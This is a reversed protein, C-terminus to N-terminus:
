AAQPPGDNAPQQQMAAQFTNVFAQAADPGFMSAIIQISQDSRVKLQAEVAEAEAKLADAEAQRTEAATKKMALMATQQQMQQQQQAEQAKAAQAQKEEETLDEGETVTLNPPLAKKLREAIDDAMPWDQSKAILDAAVAAASPVAQVFALMSEAAEARKTTYSPGTSIVIDYKGKGIDIADPDNADNIKKLSATEDEGIVRITRATDYVTPILQNAIKGVERISAQLNDHYMVTAVDGERQRAMIAKGSTENSQIGLSADHLGTVDKMDQANLQAEQLIAAPFQPPEMRKPAENGEWQLVTDGSTHANRFDEEWGEAGSKKLLWQTKPALALLEASVSRWYNLLRQPDKAFRVLGFRVRKEAVRIERGMVRIIPLRDIPLEYPDELVDSGGILYMCASKRKVERIRPKGNATTAIQGKFQDEKGTIDEIKGDVLLAIKRPTEKMVWYETVRVTDTTVWGQAAYADPLNTLQVGPYKAEFAKRPVVDSVFCYGADAGTRDVSMPDWVVALPNAGARIRIDKEFVDDNVWELNVRMWGQGCSVQDEGAVTYVGTADSDREIARILGARVEAIEKDGDEAPLVRISPRNIRTDGIVQGVFQPLRNITLCPRGMGLRQQKVKEDWQEGSLFKLDDLAANINLQDASVAETFRERVDKLFDEVNKFEAPFRKATM